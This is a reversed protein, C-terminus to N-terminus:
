NCTRNAEASWNTSRRSTAPCYSETTPMDFKWCIQRACSSIKPPITVFCRNSKKPWTRELEFRIVQGRRIPPDIDLYTVLKDGEWASHAPWTPGRTGDPKIGRVTVRIGRLQRDPQDWLSRATLRAFLVFDRPTVAELTLVERTDGNPEIEVRQVWKEVAILPEPSLEAFAEYGRNLRRLHTDHEQKVRRSKALVLLASSLLFFVVVVFAGARIAQSGFFAGLLSAFALLGVAAKLVVSPEHDRLYDDLWEIFDKFM